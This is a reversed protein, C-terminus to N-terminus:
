IIAFFFLVFCFCYFFFCCFFLCVFLLFLCFYVVIVIVFSRPMLNSLMVYFWGFLWVVVWEFIFLTKLLNKKLTGTCFLGNITLICLLYVIPSAQVSFGGTSRVQFNAELILIRYIISWWLITRKCFLGGTLQLGCIRTVKVSNAIMPSSTYLILWWLSTYTCFIKPPNIRNVLHLRSTDRAWNGHRWEEGGLFFDAPYSVLWGGSIIRWKKFKRTAIRVANQTVKGKDNIINGGLLRLFFQDPLCLCTIGCTGKRKGKKMSSLRELCFCFTTLLCM